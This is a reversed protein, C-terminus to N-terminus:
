QEGQRKRVAARAADVLARYDAKFPAALARELAGHLQWLAHLESPDAIQFTSIDSANHLEDHRALLEFLVLADDEPLEIIVL